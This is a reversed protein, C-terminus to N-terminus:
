WDKYHTGDIATEESLSYIDYVDEGGWSTSDPQDAYSRLGWEPKEGPKPPNFPDVPIRRLFKKKYNIAGGFDYGEVMQELTEPYGSKNLSAVIKKEDVAKDYAKKFEDLATRVTRLERRLELEKLRKSTMQASPLVIAALIALISVTVVLEILSLGRSDLRPIKM